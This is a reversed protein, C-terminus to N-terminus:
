DNIYNHYAMWDARSVNLSSIADIAKDTFEEVDERFGKIESIMEDVDDKSELDMLRDVYTDLYEKIALLAKVRM